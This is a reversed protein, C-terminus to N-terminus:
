RIAGKETASRLRDILIGYAKMASKADDKKGFREYAQAIRLHTNATAKIRRAETEKNM